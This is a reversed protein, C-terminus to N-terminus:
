EADTRNNRQKIIEHALRAFNIANPTDSHVCITQVPLNHTLGHVDVVMGNILRGVHDCFEAETEILADNNTRARLQTASEYRRDGFAEHKFKLGGAECTAAFASGAQGYIALESDIESVVDVLLKALEPKHLVDHYLAGHPKVHQLRGGNSQTIRKVFSIQEVLSAKLEDLPLDMTRRGFNERDPWSPHAGVGVGLEIAKRITGEILTEDGAHAGCCVNCSGVFPLISHDIETSLEGVDCNIEIPTSWVFCFITGLDM